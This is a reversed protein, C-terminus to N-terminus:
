SVFQFKVKNYVKLICVTFGLIAGMPWDNSSLKKYSIQIRIICFIHPLNSGRVKSLKLISYRGGREKFSGTYQLFDKKFYIEMDTIESMHSHNCPTM